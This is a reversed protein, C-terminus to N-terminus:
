QGQLGPAVQCAAQGGGGPLLAECSSTRCTKEVGLVHGIRCRRRELDSAYAVVHGASLKSLLQPRCVERIPSFDDFWGEELIPEDEGRVM